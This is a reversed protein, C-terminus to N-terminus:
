LREGFAWAARKMGSISSHAARSGDKSRDRREGASATRRRARWRIPGGWGHRGGWRREDHQVRRDAVEARRGDVANPECVQGLGAVAVLGFTVRDSCRELRCAPHVDLERELLRERREGFHLLAELRVDIAVVVDRCQPLDEEIAAHVVEREASVVARPVREPRGDDEVRAGLEFFPEEWRVDAGLVVAKPGFQPRFWRGGAGQGRLWGTRRHVEVPAGDARSGHREVGHGAAVENADLGPAV